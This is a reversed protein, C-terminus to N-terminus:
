LLRLKRLGALMKKGYPMEGIEEASVGKIKIIVVGYVLIGVLVAALTAVANSLYIGM